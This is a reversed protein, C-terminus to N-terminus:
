AEMRGQDADERTSHLTALTDMLVACKRDLMLRYEGIADRERILEGALELLALVAVQHPGTMPSEKQIREVREQVLAHAQAARDTDAPNRIVTKQGLLTFEKASASM